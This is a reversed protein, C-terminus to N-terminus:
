RTIWLAASIRHIWARMLQVIQELIKSYIYATDGSPYDNKFHECSKNCIAASIRTVDRAGSLDVLAVELVKAVSLWAKALKKGRFVRYHVILAKAFDIFPPQMYKKDKAKANKNLGHVTFACGHVGSNHWSNMDWRIGAHVRKNPVGKALTAKAWVIFADLQASAELQSHPKFDIISSM